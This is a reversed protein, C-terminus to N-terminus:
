QTLKVTSTYNRDLATVRRAFFGPKLESFDM